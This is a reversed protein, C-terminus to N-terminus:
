RRGTVDKPQCIGCFFTSRNSQVIRSIPTACVRCPQGGRDYVAFEEQFGGSAGDTHVFDSITSGGLEVAKTLIARIRDSLLEAESPRLSGAMREPHLGAQFLAECVYINGLGAILRQDMLAAKFSTLKGEFLSLIRQGTLENGLPELGLDRFSRHEALQSRAVLDMFGFRRPDNYIVRVGGSLDFIVHDHVPDRPADYYFEGPTAAGSPREIVFRGTMGLHAILVDGNELDALIYKARRSLGSFRQGTLRKAFHEPIPFRLDPRNLTVCAITAGELVPALGRKVTELYPLEPKPV